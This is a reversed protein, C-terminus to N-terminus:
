EVTLRTRSIVTGSVEELSCEKYFDRRLREPLTFLWKRMDDLRESDSLQEAEADLKKDWARLQNGIRETAQALALLLRTRDSLGEAKKLAKRESHLLEAM